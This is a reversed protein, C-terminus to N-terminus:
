QSRSSGRGAGRGPWRGRDARRLVSATAQSDIVPSDDSANESTLQSGTVDVSGVANIADGEDKLDIPSDTVTVLGGESEVVPAGSASTSTETVPSSSLTVADAEIVQNTANADSVPTGTLQVSNATGTLDIAPGASANSLTISGGSTTLSGGHLDVASGEGSVDFGVDTTNLATADGLVAPAGNPQSLSLHELSLSSDTGGVDTIIGPNGIPAEIITDTDPNSGNGAGDITLGSDASGLDVVEDYTGAAVDITVPASVEPVESVAYAITMCPSSECNGSNTGSVGDVHLTTAAQASGTLLAFALVIFAIGRKM